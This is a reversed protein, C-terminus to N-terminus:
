RRRGEQFTVELSVPKGERLVVAKVTEGPRAAMLVFMLDEVSGIEQTGLRQLVDGRRMGGKEAGGGPRVDSLLVGRIGPPPGGYDPVTGLSAGFSRADGRTPTPVKKYALRSQPVARALEEVARAVQAVGSANIRDAADSPKHYDSHAGTFFHLVPLGAAYFPTQDSPGYGDGSSNCQVKAAGCAAEILPQWGEASDAGLVTLQNMRLRGVMDMNLMTSGPQLLASKAQVFHSSGLVGSEEGSFATILVDRTLEAKKASLGRAVELLAATGSANDDAGLHPEHRDPTLSDPGGFGLHDYHAGVVTVAEDAKKGAPIRGVVDFARSKTFVLEIALRADFKKKALLLPMVAEIAARRVVLVPLGADGSGEPRLEPLRADPVAGDGGGAAHPDKSAADKAPAKADKAPPTAPLTAPWDVVLLALAGKNRAQFAKKRLDGARRQLEPTTLKPHEPAFRRVLVIKKAVDLGAYDDFGLEPEIIGYNAFVVPGQVSAQSSWGLPTFADKPVEKSALTLRTAPGASVATTVDFHLRYSGDDGLPELGLEKFRNELWAGAAELGKTGIGRGERDAHALWAIDAAIRDAATQAQPDKPLREDSWRALFLNTDSQGEPTARNSSFALWKGDPSFMPFGDFGPSYTIRELDTGDANIAWLDFERGRPDPTNSSFLIRDKGPFFFPAFSAAGLTTIQRADSGDANAVYLELRTPRVLGRELLARYDALEKENKPRQARWVIKSCDANFFAGGDYGPEFTLRKVNKGDSDMRYLEIDGDRVSTFLISGDKGCVTAEADYGPTDTLRTLGTGDKKVKFIDYSPYLAWVYGQSMDPKPPCADGGLHTSAYIIHENDPMWHACTTAGKGSSVPKLAPREDFPNMTYIRDCGESGQRSQLSLSKGDFSWYAEANEGGFTLQRIDKLHSENFNAGFSIAQSPRPGKPETACGLIVAAALLFVPRMHRAGYHEVSPHAGPFWCPPSRPGSARVRAGSPHERPLRSNGESAFTQATALRARCM